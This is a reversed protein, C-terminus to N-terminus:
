KKTRYISVHDCHSHPTLSPHRHANIRHQITRHRPLLRTIPQNGTWPIRHIIDLNPFQFFCGLGVLATSGYFFFISVYKWLCPCTCVITEDKEQRSCGTCPNPHSSFLLSPKVIITFTPPLLHCLCEQQKEFNTDQHQLNDWNTVKENVTAAM